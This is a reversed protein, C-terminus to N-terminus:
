AAKMIYFFVGGLTRWRSGDATLIGDGQELAHAQEAFAQVRDAGLIRVARAIRARPEQETEGLTDAIQTAVDTPPALTQSM